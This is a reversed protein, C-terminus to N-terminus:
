ASRSSWSRIAEVIGPMTYEKAEAASEYGLERLTGSTIPSISALKSKRLDDGFMNALSKAIASSTVTVWHIKGAQLQARIDADPETVDRSEYVVVQEVIGGAATLEDALVERGRSARILLFRKGKAKLRLAEALAEARFEKPLLDARLSYADLEDATGPGIAAIRCSGLRRADQGMYRLRDLFCQVGNSSSFVIWDFGRLSLIANDVPLWDGPSTIEIAPQLLVEAGLEVLPDRLEDAQHEPRTVLIRQGFLPRKDFWSWERSASAVDGVIIIVPPRLKHERIFEAVEGLMTQWVQQDPFSCRRVLAVPTTAPKGATMLGRSWEPASTVGMYFCLTGPFM